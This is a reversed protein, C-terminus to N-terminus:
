RCYCGTLPYCATVSGVVGDLQEESMEGEPCPPLIIHVQTDTNEVVKLTVGAPVDIGEATLTAAPDAILAAKFTDDAWAKAIIRAMPNSETESTM